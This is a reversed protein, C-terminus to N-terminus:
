EADEITEPDPDPIAEIVEDVIPATHEPEEYHVYGTAPNIKPQSM